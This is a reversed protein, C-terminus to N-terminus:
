VQEYICELNAAKAKWFEFEVYPSPNLGDLLPQASDKVVVERILHIWDIVVSEISHV